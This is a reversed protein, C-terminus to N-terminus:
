HCTQATAELEAGVGEGFVQVFRCVKSTSQNLEVFVVESKRQIVPEIGTPIVRMRREELSDSSESLDVSSTIM